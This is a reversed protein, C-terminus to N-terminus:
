SAPVGPAVAVPEDASVDEATPPEYAQPEQQPDEDPKPRSETVDEEQIQAGASDLRGHPTDCCL